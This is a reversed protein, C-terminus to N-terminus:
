QDQGGIDAQYGKLAFPEGELAISRYNIGSNGKSSIKYNGKLEFDNPMKGHYIIFSNQKLLTSPTVEGILTGHEVRWYTSDGKWGDLNQGNFISM